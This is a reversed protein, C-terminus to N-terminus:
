QRNEQFAKLKEIVAKKVIDPMIFCETKGCIMARPRYRFSKFERIITQEIKWNQYIPGSIVMLEKFSVRNYRYKLKSSLVGIKQFTEAECEIEIFYLISERSAREPFKDFYKQNYKGGHEEKACVPCKAGKIHSYARQEFPGHDPCVITIPSSWHTYTVQDYSYRNGHTEVCRRIVDEQNLTIRRSNRDIGCQVCSFKLHNDPTQEFPGHVPCVIKVKQRASQYEVEDYCYFDGHTAKARKLWHNKWDHTTRM